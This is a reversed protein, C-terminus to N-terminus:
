AAKKSKKKKSLSAVLDNLDMILTGLKEFKINKQDEFCKKVERADHKELLKQVESAIKSNLSSLAKQNEPELIASPVELEKLQPPGISLAGGNLHQSGFLDKYLDTALQSNLFANLAGLDIKTSTVVTTSKAPAYDGSEDYFSKLITTMNPIILKACQYQQKRKNSVFKNNLDLYPSAYAAKIYQTKQIGWTVGFNLINGSVVFKSACKSSKESIANKFEYAEAVTAAGLLDCIDGLKIKEFSIQQKSILSRFFTQSDTTDPKRVDLQPSDNFAKIHTLVAVEQVKKPCMTLIIPYVSAGDFVQITSLDDLQELYLSSEFIYDRMGKSNDTSLLKNPLIFCIRSSPSRKHCSEFFLSCIDFAGIASQYNLKIKDKYTENQSLLVSNIYPPNGIFATIKKNINGLDFLADGCVLQDDLRELKKGPYATMLWLSLKALKVARPNVDMGSICKDLVERATESFSEQVDDLSEDSLKERYVTTLYELAGSLFHGSGMSPDCINITFIDKSKLNKVIPGISNQIMYRVIHDPTYYSGTMKRDQNNPSFFLSGKRVISNDSLKLSQVKASKLNAQQWSGKTFVMDSEAKELRFELFSEYISGLQRPTFYSYPIQQYKRGNVSSEIFNLSFLINIRDKNNIKHKKAFKWEEKSFISEKFGAVEFGFDKSSSVGDHIIEYLNMFRNFLDFGEFSFNKGGFTNGFRFDRNYGDWNKEPDFNMEALVEVVEHLSLRLYNLSQIPLVKRVECFKVFLINFLHSESVNRIIELDVEEGSKEASDRLSNCVFGMTLIFRKKLDEEISHAYKKSYEFVEQLFPKSRKESSGLFSEKCFFYYFYKSYHRFKQENSASKLDLALERLNGLDFEFCRREITNSFESHFLKWTKGDSLIGFDHGVLEMYKLTQLEPGLGVASDDNEKTKYKDTQTSLRNWYKAEVVVKAGTRKDRIERLKSETDKQKQTYSKHEPEDFYILDPRYVQKKSREEVTFSTNDIYSNQHRSSNNEWGLLTMVPVIWNKVTDAERWNDFSEHELDHCLNIFGQYFEYFPGVEDNDWLKKHERPLDNKLYVDSFLSSSWFPNLDRKTDHFLEAQDTNSDAKKATSKAM